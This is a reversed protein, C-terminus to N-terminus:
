LLCAPSRLSLHVPPPGSCSQCEEMTRVRTRRRRRRGPGADTRTRIKGTPPSVVADFTTHSGRGLCNAKAIIMCGRVCQNQEGTRSRRLAEHRRRLFSLKEGGGGRNRLCIIATPLHCRLFRAPEFPSLLPSNVPSCM